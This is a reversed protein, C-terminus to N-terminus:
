VILYRPIRKLYARYSDGYRELCSKEESLIRSHYVVAVVALLLLALWSGMAIATGAFMTALSLWQPNRSLRYLGQTVPQDVPTNRYNFLAVLMGLYGACFIALGVIFVPQGIKLPTFIALIFFALAVPIRVISLWRQQRTWGSRDYLKKVVDRPFVIMLLAFVLYFVALMLWGNLWGLRLEPLWEM